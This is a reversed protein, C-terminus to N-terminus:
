GVSGSASHGVALHAATAPQTLLPPFHASLSLFRSMARTLRLGLGGVVRILCVIGFVLAKVFCQFGFLAGSRVVATVFHIVSLLSQFGIVIASSM